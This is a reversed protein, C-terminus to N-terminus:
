KISSLSQSNELNDKAWKYIINGCDYIKYWKKSKIFDQKSMNKPCNYDKILREKTFLSKDKRENGVVYYYNPKSKYSLHFNIKSVFDDQYWRRDANFAVNFPNYDSVFANFLTEEANIVKYNLKNCFRLLEYGGNGHETFSM